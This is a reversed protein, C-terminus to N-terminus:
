GALFELLGRNFAAPQEINAAHGDKAIVAATGRPALRAAAAAHGSPWLESEAGAVFLAPVDCRAIVPRWDATAHDALIELEPDTITRSGGSMARLLRVTRMGRLWVSRGHGTPPPGEAFYTDRNSEDYGYYGYPWDDTNLMKPTQDVIVVSRLRDTGHEDVYAWVTNGGMSGGVLTVDRLDLQELVSGVARARARMTAGPAMPETAGHGPLDVALVRYGAGALAPLQFRWSTAAAKFGALLVVPRGDAPGQETLDLRVGDATHLHM